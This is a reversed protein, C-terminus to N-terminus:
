TQYFVTRRNMALLDCPLLGDEYSPRWWVRNSRYSTVTGCPIYGWALRDERDTLIHAVLVALQEEGAPGTTVDDVVHELVVARCVVVVALGLRVHTM